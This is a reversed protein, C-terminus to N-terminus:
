SPMLVAKWNHAKESLAIREMPGDLQENFFQLSEIGKSKERYHLELEVRTICKHNSKNSSIEVTGKENIMCKEIENMNILRMRKEEAVFDVFLLLRKEAFWAIARHLSLDTHSWQFGNNGATLTLADSLIKRKQRTEKQTKRVLAVVILVLSAIIALVIILM